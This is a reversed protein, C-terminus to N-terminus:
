KGKMELTRNYSASVASAIATTFELNQLKKVGEITSGGPSCVKIRLTSFDDESNQALKASGLLMQTIYKVIKEKPLGIKEAGIAMGEMFMDAYAPACGTIVSGADIHQEDIADVLGAAAFSKTFDHIYPRASETNCYMIVGEGVRVPTNPMIRIIPYTGNAYDQITDTTLAAAMSVLVFADTRKALVPALEALTEKMMQPKVGLIIYTCSAAIKKNDSVHAGIQSALTEAKEKTRNALYISSPNVTKALAVALAGGMNGTGIFGFTITMIKM